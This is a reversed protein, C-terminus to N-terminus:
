NKLILVAITASLFIVGAWLVRGETQLFAAWEARDDETFPAQEGEETHAGGTAQTEAPPQGGPGTEEGGGKEERLRINSQATWNLLAFYLLFLLLLVLGTLRAAIHTGFFWSGLSVGLLGLMFVPACGTLM